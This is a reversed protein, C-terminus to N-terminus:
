SGAPVSTSKRKRLTLLLGVIMLAPLIILNMYISGSGGVRAIPKWLLIAKRAIHESLVVVFMLPIMARYRILALVGFFSIVLQALGWIAFLAM